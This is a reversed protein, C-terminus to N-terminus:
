KPKRRERYAAELEAKRTEFEKGDLKRGTGYDAPGMEPPPALWWQVKRPRGRKRKTVGILSM